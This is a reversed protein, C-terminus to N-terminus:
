ARDFTMQLKGPTGAELRIDRTTERMISLGMGGMRRKTRRDWDQQGAKYDDPDFQFSWDAITVLVSKTEFRLDVTVSEKSGHQIVNSCAEDIALQLRCVERHPMGAKDGANEVFDRIMSLSEPDSPAVMQYHPTSM